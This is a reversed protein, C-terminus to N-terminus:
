DHLRAPDAAARRAAGAITSAAARVAANADDTIQGALSLGDDDLLCAAPSPKQAAHDKIRQNLVGRRALQAMVSSHHAVVQAERRKAEDDLRELLRDSLDLQRAQWRSREVLEGAAFRADGYAWGSALILAAAGVGALVLGWSM